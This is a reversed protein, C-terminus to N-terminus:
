PCNSACHTAGAKTAAQATGGFAGANPLWEKNNALAFCAVCPNTPNPTGDPVCAGGIACFGALPTAKCGGAGDCSDVTCPLGDDSAYGVGARGGDACTDTRTCADGDNCLATSPAHVCGVTPDCADTTCADQDNCDLAPGVICGMVKDCSEVGNCANGDNCTLSAGGDPGALAVGLTDGPGLADLVLDTELAVDGGFPLADLRMSGGPGQLLLGEPVHTAPGLLAWGHPGTLDHDLIPQLDCSRTPM